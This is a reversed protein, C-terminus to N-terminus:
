SYAESLIKRLGQDRGLKDIEPRVCNLKKSEIAVHVILSEM